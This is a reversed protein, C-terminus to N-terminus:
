GCAFSEVRNSADLRINLRQPSFDMTVMDGPRIWRLRASGSRRQAEAGLEPTGPRGVLRSLHRPDCTGEPAQEPAIPPFWQITTGCGALALALALPAKKM